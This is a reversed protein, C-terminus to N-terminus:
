ILSSSFVHWSVHPLGGSNLRFQELEGSRRGGSGGAAPDRACCCCCETRACCCETRSCCCCGRGHRSGHITRSILVPDVQLWGPSESGILETVISLALRERLVSKHLEAIAIGTYRHQHRCAALALVGSGPLFDLVHALQHDHMSGFLNLRERAHTEPAEAMFLPVGVKDGSPPVSAAECGEEVEGESEVDQVDTAASCLGKLASDRVSTAVTCM